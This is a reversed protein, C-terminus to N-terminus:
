RNADRTRAWFDHKAFRRSHIHSETRAGRPRAIARHM